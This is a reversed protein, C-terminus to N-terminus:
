RKPIPATHAAGASLRAPDPACKKAVEKLFTKVLGFRDKRSDRSRENKLECFKFGAFPTPGRAPWGKIGQGVALGSRLAPNHTYLGKSAQQQFYPYKM